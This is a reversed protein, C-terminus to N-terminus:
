IKELELKIHMKEFKNIYPGKSSIWNSKLCNILYKLENGSLNPEFIPITEDDFRLNIIENLDNVIPVCKIKINNNGEVGEKLIKKIEVESSNTNLSVFEKNMVKEIASNLSLGKLFFRRIDGDTLVGVLKKNKVVFVIGRANKDILNLADNINKKYDIIFNDIM